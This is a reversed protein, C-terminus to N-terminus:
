RLVSEYLALAEGVLREFTFHAEYHSRAARGMTTRLEAHEILLKLRDALLV